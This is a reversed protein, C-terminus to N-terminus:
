MEWFVFFGAGTILSSAFSAGRYWGHESQLIAAQLKCLKRQM